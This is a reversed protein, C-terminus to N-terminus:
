MIGFFRKNRVFMGIYGDDLMESCPAESNSKTTAENNSQKFTCGNEYEDM